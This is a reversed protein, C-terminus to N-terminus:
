WILFVEEIFLIYTRINYERNIIPFLQYFSCINVLLQIKVLGSNLYDANSENLFDVFEPFLINMKM